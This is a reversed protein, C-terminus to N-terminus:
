WQSTLLKRWTSRNGGGIFSVVMIFHFIISLPMLCWLGLNYIWSGYSLGSFVNSMFPCNFWNLYLIMEILISIFPSSVLLFINKLSTQSNWVEKNLVLLNIKMVIIINNVLYTVHKTQFKLTLWIESFSM